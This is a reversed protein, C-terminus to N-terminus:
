PGSRIRPARFPSTLRREPILAAAVPPLTRREDRVHLAAPRHASAGDDARVHRRRARPARGRVAPRDHVAERDGGGHRRRRRAGRSRVLRRTRRRRRARVGELEHLGDRTPVPEGGPRVDPRRRRGDRDGRLRLRPVRRADPGLPVRAPQVARVPARRLLARAGRVLAPQRTDHRVGSLLSARWRGRGARRRLGPRAHVDSGAGAAVRGDGDDGDGRPREVARDEARHEGNALQSLLRRYRARLGRSDRRISEGRSWRVGGRTTTM